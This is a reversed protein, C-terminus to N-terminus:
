SRDHADAPGLRRSRACRVQKGNIYLAKVDAKVNGATYEVKERVHVCKGELAMGLRWM